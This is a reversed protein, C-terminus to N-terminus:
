IGVGGAEVECTSPSCAGSPADQDRKTTLVSEGTRAKETLVDLVLNPTSVVTFGHVYVTPILYM